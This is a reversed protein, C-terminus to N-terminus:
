LIVDQYKFNSQIEEELPFFVFDQPCFSQQSFSRDSRSAINGLGLGLGRERDEFLIAPVTFLLLALCTRALAVGRKDGKRPYGATGPVSSHVM